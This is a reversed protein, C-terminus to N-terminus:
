FVLFPQIQKDKTEARPDAGYTFLCPQGCFVLVGYSCGRRFSLVGGSFSLIVCSLIRLFVLIVSLSGGQAGMAQVMSFKRRGDDDDPDPETELQIVVRNDQLIRSEHEPFIHLNNRVIAVFQMAVQKGGAMTFISINGIILYSTAACATATTKGARRSAEVIVCSSDNPDWGREACVEHRYLHYDHPGLINYLNARNLQSILKEQMKWMKPLILRQVAEVMRLKEVGRRTKNELFRALYTRFQHKVYTNKDDLLKERCREIYARM